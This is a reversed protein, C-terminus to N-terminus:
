YNTIIKQIRKLECIDWVNFSSFGVLQALNCKNPSFTALVPEELEQAIIRTGLMEHKQNVKQVMKYSPETDYWTSEKNGPQYFLPSPEGREEWAAALAPPSNPFSVVSLQSRWNLNGYIYM